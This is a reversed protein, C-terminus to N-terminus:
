NYPFFKIIVDGLAELIDAMAQRERACPLGSKLIRGVQGYWTTGGEKVSFDAFRCSKRGKPTPIKVEYEVQDPSYNGTQKAIEDQHAQSGKRGNPNRASNNGGSSGIAYSIIGVTTEAVVSYTFAEAAFELAIPIAVAGAGGSAITEAIAFAVIGIGAVVAAAKLCNEGFEKLAGRISTGYYDVNNVPNNECYAFLNKGLLGPNIQGDANIFRGIAPDYYRSQLYYFNTEIM